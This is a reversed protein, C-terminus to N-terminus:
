IIIYVGNYNYLLAVGVLTMYQIYMVIIYIYLLAVGVLTMITYVGNYNYLLAVGVLTMYQINYMVIIYIYLLPTTYM